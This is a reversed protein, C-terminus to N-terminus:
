LEESDKHHALIVGERLQLGLLGLPYYVLKETTATKDQCKVSM